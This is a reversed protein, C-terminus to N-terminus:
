YKSFLLTKYSLDEKMMMTSLLIPDNLLIDSLYLLPINLLSTQFVGLFVVVELLSLIYKLFAFYVVMYLLSFKDLFCPFKCM